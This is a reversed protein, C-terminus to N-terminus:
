ANTTTSSSPAGYYTMGADGCATLAQQCFALADAQTATNNSADSLANIDGPTITIILTKGASNFDARMNAATTTTGGANTITSQNTVTKSVTTTEANRLM